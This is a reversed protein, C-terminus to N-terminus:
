SDRRLLLHYHVREEPSAMGPERVEAPPCVFTFGPFLGPLEAPDAYIHPSGGPEHLLTFRDARAEPRAERYRRDHKSKVTVYAEGGPRLVRFLESVGRLYGATDTHFSAHYDVVCDFSIDPFPLTFIDGEVSHVELGELRARERLHSLASVSRDLGTVRFGMRAAAMAHRGPGCGRDLLDIFGRARWQELVQLLRPAPTLWKEIKEATWGYDAM